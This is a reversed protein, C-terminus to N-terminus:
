TGLGWEDVRVSHPPNHGPHYPRAKAQILKLDDIVGDVGECPCMTVYAVPVGDEPGVGLLVRSDQPDGESSGFWAVCVVAAPYVPVGEFREVGRNELARARERHKM